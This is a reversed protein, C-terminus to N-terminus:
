HMSNEMMKENLKFNKNIGRFVCSFSGEGLKNLM